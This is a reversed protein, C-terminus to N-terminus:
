GTKMQPTIGKLVSGSIEATITTKDAIQGQSEQHMRETRKRSKEM